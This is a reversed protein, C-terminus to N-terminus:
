LNSQDIFKQMKEFFSNVKARTRIMSFLGVIGKLCASAPFIAYLANELDNIASYNIASLTSTFVVLALLIEALWSKLLNLFKMRHNSKEVWCIGLWIFINHQLELIRM